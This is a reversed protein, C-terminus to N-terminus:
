DSINWEDADGNGQLQKIFEGLPVEVITSEAYFKQQYEIILMNDPIRVIFRVDELHPTGITVAVRYDEDSM